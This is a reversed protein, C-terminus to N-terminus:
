PTSNFMAMFLNILSSLPRNETTALTVQVSLMIACPMIHCEGCCINPTTVYHPVIGFAIIGFAAIRFPMIIFPM